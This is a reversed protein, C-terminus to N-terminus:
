GDKELCASSAGNILTNSVIRRDSFENAPQDSGPLTLFSNEGTIQLKIRSVNFDKNLREYTSGLLHILSGRDKISLLRGIEPNEAVSIAIALSQGAKHNLMEQFDKYHGTMLSKEEKLILNHQSRLNFITITKKGVFAFFLFLILIKWRISINKIGPLINRLVSM